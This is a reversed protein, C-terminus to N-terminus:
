MAKREFVDATAMVGGGRPDSQGGYSIMPAPTYNSSTSQLSSSSLIPPYQAVRELQLKAERLSYVFAPNPELAIDESYNM